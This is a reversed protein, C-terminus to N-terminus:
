VNVFLSDKVGSGARTQDRFPMNRIGKSTKYTRIRCILSCRHSSSCFGAKSTSMMGQGSLRPCPQPGGPAWRARRMEGSKRAWMEAGPQQPHQLNDATEPFLQLFAPRCSRAEGLRPLWQLASCPEYLSVWRVGWIISSALVLSPFHSTWPWMTFLHYVLTPGPPRVGVRPSQGGCWLSGCLVFKNKEKIQRKQPTPSFM